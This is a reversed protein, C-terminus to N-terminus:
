TGSLSVGLASSKCSQTHRCPLKQSSLHALSTKLLIETVPNRWFLYVCFMLFGSSEKPIKLSTSNCYTLLVDRLFSVICTSMIKLSVDDIEEKAVADENEEEDQDKDKDQKHNIPEM